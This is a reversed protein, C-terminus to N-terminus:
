TLATLEGWTAAKGNILDNESVAASTASSSGGSNTATVVVRVSLESDVSDFAYSSNTASSIDSCANGALNCRRWQYSFDPSPFADWEGSSATLTKGVEVVGSIVPLSTNDPKLVTQATVESYATDQGTTNSATVKVRLTKAAQSALPWYSSSTAGQIDNCSEGVSNCLQWRYAFDPDPYGRWQGPSATLEKSM